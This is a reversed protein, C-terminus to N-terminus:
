GGILKLLLFMIVAAIIGGIFFAKRWTKKYLSKDMPLDGVFKGTQGNMAFIFKQGNWTTNLLWVPLLAYKRENEKLKISSSEVNVSDYGASYVTENFREQVSQRIRENAREECEAGDSDYKDAFYGSLYATQFDVAQTYDYPELSETLENIIKSSCDVPVNDFAVNGGRIVSYYSTKTYNYNSDSWHSTKTAKYRILDDTGASYLWFPVYVGKIEDIHNEDRFVAPLFKKGTLHGKFADVAAQKDLQFPIVLDPKLMGAFQSKMIVPNDCYPCAAAALSEDGVIEGGCSTCVYVRMGDTEGPIWENNDAESWNLSDPSDTQLDHDYGILSDMEFETDCYPCKMKQISSEFSIPGGCCPCKYEQLGPM